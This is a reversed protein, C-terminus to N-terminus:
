GRGGVLELYREELTGGATRLEELLLARAACWAALAAVRGPDPAGGGLRYRPAVGDVEVSGGLAHGLEAREDDGLIRALRFRLRPASAATLEASTGLAILRGHDIIAIRDALRELDSLEHTTLLITTGRGRLEGILERTAVKAAPDMGATPEDLIALEPRGILALALGLRQRQGGSLVRYRTSAVEALGVRELLDDPDEPAAYFSSFLHLVERPRVQPQLGGSQLMLGVRARLARSDRAPDRGLVEVEGGDRRRYGELIEVTTTKGAGNPGLLAFVEGREVTLDLDVVVDRGDYAKRLARARIAPATALPGSM